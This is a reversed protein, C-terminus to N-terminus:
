HAHPDQGTALAFHHAQHHMGVTMVGIFGLARIRVPDNGTVTLAAGGPIEEAQMTWGEAGDMAAAHAPVMARISTTVATDESTAEFRAGGEIERASVRARLTVNDMDILHQRLAEIDVRTWDTEPDAMLLEVIEQIAAFASQGGEMVGVPFVDGNM